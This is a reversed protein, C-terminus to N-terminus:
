KGKKDKIATISGNRELVAYKVEDITKMGSARATAMVDTPHIRMMNMTELQWQKDKLLVLPPGDIILSLRPHRHKLLSVVRHTLGIALVCLVSNTESRDNGVICLIAVGGILFIIVFEFPTMQGGPRRSLMRIAALLVFYSIVAYIISQM